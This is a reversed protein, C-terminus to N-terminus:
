QLGILKHFSISVDEKRRGPDAAPRTGLENSFRHCGGLSPASKEAEVNFVFFQVGDSMRLDNFDIDLLEVRFLGIKKLSFHTGIDIM